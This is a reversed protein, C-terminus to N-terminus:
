YLVKAIQQKVVSLRSCSECIPKFLENEFFDVRTGKAFNHLNFPLSKSLIKAKNGPLWVVDDGFLHKEVM